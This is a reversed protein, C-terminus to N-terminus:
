EPETSKGALRNEVYAEDRLQRLWNRTEEEIKRQRILERIRSRRTKGQDDHARRALVQVIHWGFRTQFPESIQGPELRNMQQEFEPVMSGPDVWGLDGGNAASGPDQSNSRALSAFDGGSQIRQRLQQLRNKIEEVSNVEDPRLLIHRAHTQTITQSKEDRVEVLKIIHFGSPSRILDSIEGPQMQAVVDAFITPLQGAKRWGLDGGQLAQPDDSVAIATRAFDAGGRLRRLVEQARERVERIQEPRAAEPLAVLIHALRYAKDTAGQAELNALFNDIEENTVTVRSDIQRQRLRNIAIDNRLSERFRTYDYGDEELAERFQELTLGNQAAINRMARNLVEDDVKIGSRRALQMQLRRAILNELVQRRLLSDPPPTTGNQRLRDRIERTQRRLEGSTIVDDNVVAAISELEMEQELPAAGSLTASLLLMAAAFISQLRNM